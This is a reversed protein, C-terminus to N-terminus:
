SRAAPAAERAAPRITTAARTSRKPLKLPHTLHRQATGTAQRRLPDAALLKNTRATEVMEDRARSYNYWRGFSETDIPSLRWQRLPDEIRAAFRLAQEEMGVELWLQILILDHWCGRRNRSWGRSVRLSDEESVADITGGKGAADRAEFLVIVLAQRGECM